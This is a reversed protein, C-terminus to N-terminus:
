GPTLASARMLAFFGQMSPDARLGRRLYDLWREAVGRACRPEMIAMFKGALEDFTAPQAASWRPFQHSTWAQGQHTTLTLKVSFSAPFAQELADDVTFSVRRSLDLLRGDALREAEFSHQGVRADLVAVAACFPLSYRAQTSNAFPGQTMYLKGTFAPGSVHLAAVDEPALEHRQMLEGV